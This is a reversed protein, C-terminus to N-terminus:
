YLFPVSPYMRRTSIALADGEIHQKNAILVSLVSVQQFHAKELSNLGQLIWSMSPHSGASLCEKFRSTPKIDPVVALKVRNPKRHHFSLALLRKAHFTNYNWSSSLDM